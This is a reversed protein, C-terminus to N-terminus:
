KYLFDTDIYDISTTAQKYKEIIKLADQHAKHGRYIELDERTDFYSILGLDAGGEKINRFVEYHKIEKIKEPLHSLIDIIEKIAKEKEESSYESKTNFLVIHKIM